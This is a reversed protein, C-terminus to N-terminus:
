ASQVTPLPEFFSEPLGALKCARLFTAGFGVLTLSGGYHEVTRSLRVLAGLGAADIFTLATLDVSIHHCGVALADNTRWRLQLSAIADLEGRVTLLARDNHCSLTTHFDM